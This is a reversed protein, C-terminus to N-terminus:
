MAGSCGGVRAIKRDQPLEAPAPRILGAPAFIPLKHNPTKLKNNFLKSKKIHKVGINYEVKTSKIRLTASPDCVEVAPLLIQCKYHLQYKSKAGVIASFSNINSCSTACLLM